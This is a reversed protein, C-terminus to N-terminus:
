ETSSGQREYSTMGASSRALRAQIRAFTIAIKTEKIIHLESLASQFEAEVEGMLMM